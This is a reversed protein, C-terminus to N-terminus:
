LDEALRMNSVRRECPGLSAFRVVEITSRQYTQAIPVVRYLDRVTRIACRCCRDEAEDSTLIFDTLLDRDCLGANFVLDDSLGLSPLYALTRCSTHRLQDKYKSSNKVM